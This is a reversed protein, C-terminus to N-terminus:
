GAERAQGSRGRREDTKARCTWCRIARTHGATPIPTPKSAPQPPPASTPASAAAAKKDGFGLKELIRSFISM